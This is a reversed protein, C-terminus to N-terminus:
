IDANVCSTNSIASLLFTETLWPVVKLASCAFAATFFAVPESVKGVPVLYSHTPFLTALLTALVDPLCVNWTFTVNGGDCVPSLKGAAVWAVGLLVILTVTFTVGGFGVNSLLLTVEVERVIVPVNPPNFAFLLLVTTDTANFSPVLRTNVLSFLPPTLILPLM